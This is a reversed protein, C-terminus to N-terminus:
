TIKIKCIVYINKKTIRKNHQGNQCTPDKNEDIIYTPTEYKKFIFFIYDLSIIPSHSLTIM